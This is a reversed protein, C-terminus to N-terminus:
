RWSTIDYEGCFAPIIRMIYGKTNITTAGILPLKDSWIPDSTKVNIPNINPLKPNNKIADKFSFEDITLMTINM